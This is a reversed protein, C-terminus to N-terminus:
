ATDDNIPLTSSLSVLKMSYKTFSTYLSQVIASNPFSSYAFPFYSLGAEALHLLLGLATVSFLSFM